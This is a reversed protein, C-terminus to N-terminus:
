KRLYNIIGVLLVFAFPVFIAILMALGLGSLNQEM